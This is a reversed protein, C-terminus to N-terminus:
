FSSDWNRILEHWFNISDLFRSLYAFEDVTHARGGGGPGIFIRSMRWYHKTDTNGTPLSPVVVVRGTDSLGDFIHHITGELVRWGRDSLDLHPSVPAPEIGFPRPQVILHGVADSTGVKAIVQTRNKFGYLTFNLKLETAVREQVLLLSSDVAIRHNVTAVVREPLANAKLGGQIIDVAQTTTLQSYTTGDKAALLEALSSRSKPWTQIADVIDPNPNESHAAYCRMKGLLPNHDGKTEVILDVDCYGKEGVSVSATKVGEFMGIGSGEDVILWDQEGGQWGSIEEDHGYALFVTARPRFGERILLEVAEMQAVLTKDAEWDVVGEFPPHTWLSLRKRFCPVVDQHAMLLIPTRMSMVTKKLTKHVLPFADEPFCAVLSFPEHVPDPGTPPPPVARWSDFSVTKFTIAHSLHAVATRFFLRTQFRSNTILLFVLNASKTQQKFSLVFMGQKVATNPNEVCLIWIIFAISTFASLIHTFQLSHTKSAKTHM